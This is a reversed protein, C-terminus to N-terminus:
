AHMCSLIDYRLAGSFLCAVFLGPLGPFDQLIDMVFYLVMQDPVAKIEPTFLNNKQDYAFMVLGTLCGLALVLQQCPFVAYCSKIGSIKNNDIAIQWVEKIGGVKATGVIIVALQGAFMVMTQIVDTWIVAKLGGLTTYVTCVLGMTLVVGWLSFGTVAYFALAPAYLVVGMYIVQPCFLVSASTLLCYQ